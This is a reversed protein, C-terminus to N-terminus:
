KRFEVGRGEKSHIQGLEFSIRKLDMQGWM